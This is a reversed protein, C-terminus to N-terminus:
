ILGSWIWRCVGRMTSPAFATHAASSFTLLFRLHVCIFASLILYPVALCALLFLFCVFPHREARPCSSSIDRCLTSHNIHEKIDLILLSQEPASDFAQITKTQTRILRADLVPDTRTWCPTLEQSQVQSRSLRDQISALDLVSGKGQVSWIWRCVGRMTSPAFATHAASSFTLLFRLHVCIFASLILFWNQRRHVGISASLILLLRGRLVCLACLFFM